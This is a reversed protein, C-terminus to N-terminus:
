LTRKDVIRKAKGESRAITKPEVLTVKVGISLVNQIEKRIKERMVNLQKIEDSFFKEDVEVLVEVEDLQHAQRDVIIQYHPQTGEIGVLVHEIQSPFVNIGRVVIMDDTRGKIKSIRPSTRGCRCKDYRISVIDRTGYRILPIGQKTLTTVVLEGPEGEPVEQGTKPDLIEPYFVDSFVHLGDKYQCEQAVGPGIIESLGYIDTALMNWISEIEHRMADSWPEAGFVGIKWNGKAPDIGLTRAEEAMYLVYSPTCAIIRPKFDQMLKLQRATQGSSTPLIRLGMELAGYHSGLGGTFLGYGYAIQITDGPVAGACCFARAMVEGWLKVDARTYGVLTPNGTTGSSVHIEAIQDQPASFLGYPYNDRMDEKTTIPLRKIDDISKIQDPKVGAADLKRRYVACNNYIYPILKRLYGSQLEKLDARAACEVDEKWIMM